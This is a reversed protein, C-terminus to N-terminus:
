EAVVEVELPQPAGMLGEVPQAIIEYRGPGLVFSFRGNAGTRSDVEEGSDSIALVIADAVPRPACSPDPPNTEVPCVPGALAIGSVVVGAEPPQGCTAFALAALLATLAIQSRSDFSM